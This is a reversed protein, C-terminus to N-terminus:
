QWELETRGKDIDTTNLDLLQLGKRNLNMYFITTNHYLKTCTKNDVDYIPIYYYIYYSYIPSRM